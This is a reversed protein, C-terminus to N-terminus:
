DKSALRKIAEVLLNLDTSAKVFYEAAGLDLCKQIEAADSKNSFVVICINKLDENQKLIAIVDEGQLGPLMLDMIIVDPQFQTAVNVVDNGDQVSYPICGVSSLKTLVLESIFPDDEVMMVKVAGLERKGFEDLKDQINTEKSM